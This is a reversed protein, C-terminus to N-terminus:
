RLARAPTYCSASGHSSPATSRRPRCGAWRVPAGVSAARHIPPWDPSAASCTPSASVPGVKEAILYADLALLKTAEVMRVSLGYFPPVETNAPEFM